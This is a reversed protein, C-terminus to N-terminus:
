SATEEMSLETGGRQPKRWAGLNVLVRMVEVGEGWVGRALYGPLSPSVALEREIGRREELM